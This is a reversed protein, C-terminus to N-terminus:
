REKIEYSIIANNKYIMTVLKNESNNYAMVISEEGRLKRQSYFTSAPINLEEKLFHNAVVEQKNQIVYDNETFFYFYVLMLVIGFGIAASLSNWKSKNVKNGYTLITASLSVPTLLMGMDVLTHPIAHVFLFVILPAAIIILVNTLTEEWRAIAIALTHSIWITFFVYVFDIITDTVFYALLYIAVNILTTIITRIIPVGINAMDKSQKIQLFRDVIALGIMFLSIIIIVM